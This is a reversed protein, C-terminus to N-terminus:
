LTSHQKTGLHTVQIPSFLIFLTDVVLISNFIHSLRIKDMIVYQRLRYPQTIVFYKKIPQLFKMIAANTKTEVFLHVVGFSVFTQIYSRANTQYITNQDEM